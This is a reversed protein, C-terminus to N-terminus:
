FASLDLNLTQGLWLANEAHDELDNGTEPHVLINLHNRNIMLWPVLTGFDESRFLVQYMAIPHPGIPNDHWRGLTVDFNKDLAHRLMEADARTEPTYYVHAHYGSINSIPRNV